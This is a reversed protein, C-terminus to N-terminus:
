GNIFEKNFKSGPDVTNATGLVFFLFAKDVEQQNSLAIESGEVNKKFDKVLNKGNGWLIKDAMTVLFESPEAQMQVVEM